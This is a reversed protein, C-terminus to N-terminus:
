CKLTVKTVRLTLHANGRLAHSRSFFIYASTTQGGGICLLPHISELEEYNDKKGSYLSSGLCYGGGAGIFGGVWEAGSSASYVGALIAITGIGFALFQGLRTEKIQAEIQRAELKQRHDSQKEAMAANRNALGPAIDEYHELVAPSPLPGSFQM